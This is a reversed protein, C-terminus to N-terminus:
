FFTEFLLLDMANRAEGRARASISKLTHGEATSYKRTQEKM